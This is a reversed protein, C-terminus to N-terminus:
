DRDLMERVRAGLELASFPKQLFSFRRDTHEASIARETPYGSILLIRLDPSTELLRDALETGSIEPMVVDTIVLHIEGRHTQELKLAEAGEAATMVTYGFSTLITAILERLNDADEVVLLTEDGRLDTGEQRPVRQEPNGRKDVRPLYIRFLTGRGVESYVTVAGNNQRVLGYVTSLGLGTGGSAQKTTFFPEFVRAETEETMGVGTDAVQLTVYEGPGADFLESLADRMLTSNKTTIRLKGGGPMADRANLVLNMLIQEVQSPDIEAYGLDTSLDLQLDINEPLVRRFMEEMDRVLRNLDLVQPKSQQRRAFALLQRTLRSAREANQSIQAAHWHAGSDEAAEDALLDAHGIIATLVNNFDHAIGGALTGVADMRQVRRLQDQLHHSETIDRGVVILGAGGGSTSFSRVHWAVQRESGDARTITTEVEGPDDGAFAADIYAYAEDRRQKDPYVLRMLGKASDIQDRSYGTIQEAARNWIVLEGDEDVVSFWVAANDIIGELFNNLRAIEQESQAKDLIVAMQQAFGELLEKELGTLPTDERRSVTVHGIARGARVFPMLCLYGIGLAQLVAMGHHHPAPRAWNRIDEATRTLDPARVELMEGTQYITYAQTEPSLPMVMGDTTGGFVRQESELPMNSYRMVLEDGTEGSRRLFIHVHHADLIDRLGDAGAVIIEKVSDGANLMQNLRNILQLRATVLRQREERRRRRTIDTFVAVIGTLEGRADRVADVRGMVPFTRGSTHRGEFEGVFSGKQELQDFVRRYEDECAFNARPGGAERLEEATCGFMRVFAPNLYTPVYDADAMGIADSSNDLATKIRLLDEQARRQQTINTVVALSAIVDDSEDRLPTSTILLSIDEGTITRAELEYAGAVGESFRREIQNTLVAANEVDLLDRVNRGVVREATSHIMDALAQNAFTIRGGRDITVLGDGMTEVLRRYREESDRLQRETAKIERLDVLVGRIGTVDGDHVIPASYIVSPIVAGDRRLMTYEAGADLVEGALMRDVREMARPRDEEAILTGVHPRSRLDARTYGFLDLGRQNVFTFHGSRDLEFVVQPLAEALAYYRERTDRLAEAIEASERRQRLDRLARDVAPILRESLHHTIIWDDAGAKIADVAAEADDSDALVLLPIMRDTSRLLAVTEGICDASLDHECLILDFVPPSSPDALADRMGTLDPVHRVTAECSSERFTREIERRTRDTSGVLLLVLNM